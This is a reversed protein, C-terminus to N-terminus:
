AAVGAEERWAARHGYREIDAIEGRLRSLHQRMRQELVYAEFTPPYGYLDETVLGQSEAIRRIEVLEAPAEM